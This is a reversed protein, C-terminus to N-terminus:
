YHSPDTGFARAIAADVCDAVDHADSETSGWGSVSCDAAGERAIESAAVVTPRAWSDQTRHHELGAGLGLLFLAALIGAVTTTIKSM